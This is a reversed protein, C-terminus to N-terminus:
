DGKRIITRRMVTLPKRSEIIRGIRIRAWELASTDLGLFLEDLFELDASM